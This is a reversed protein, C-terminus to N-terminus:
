ELSLLFEGTGVATGAAVRIERVIGSKPARIENQMKMAELVLLGQDGTVSDGEKVLVRVVKGPMEAKLRQLGASGTTAERQPIQRRADSISVTQSGGCGTVTCSNESVEIFFDYVRGEVILSCHGDPLRVWDYPVEKGNLTVKRTGSISLIGVSVRQDKSGIEFIV